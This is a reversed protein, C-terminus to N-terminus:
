ERGVRDDHVIYFQVLVYERARDIGDFISEFTAEGDILLEVENGGLYPLRALRQGALAAGPSRAFDPIVPDLEAAVRPAEQDTWQDRARREIVYGQFKSRGFVWYAPVAGYPFTNLSVLWAITGQSTRVTMLAHISTLIGLLHAVLVILGL